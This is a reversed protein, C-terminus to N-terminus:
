VLSKSLNGIFSIRLHGLTVKDNHHTSFHMKEPGLLNIKM